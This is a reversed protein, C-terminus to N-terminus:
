KKGQLRRRAMWVAKVTVKFREALVDDPEAAREIEILEGRTWQHRLYSRPGARPKTRKM